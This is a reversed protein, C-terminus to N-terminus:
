KSEAKAARWKNTYWVSLGGVLAGVVGDWPFPLLPRAVETINEATSPANDEKLLLSDWLTECGVAMLLLAMVM